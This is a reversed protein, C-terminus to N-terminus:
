RREGELYRTLQGEDDFEPATDPVGLYFVVLAAKGAAADREAAFFRVETRPLQAFRARSLTVIAPPAGPRPAALVAEERSFPNMGIVAFHTYRAPDASVRLRVETRAEDPGRLVGWAIAVSEGSFRDSSGHRETGQGNAQAAALLLTGLILGKM